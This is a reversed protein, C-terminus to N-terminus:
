RKILGNLEDKAKEIFARVEDHQQNISMELKKIDEKIRELRLEHKVSFDEIQKLLLQISKSDNKNNKNDIVKIQQLIEKEAETDKKISMVERIRHKDENEKSRTIKSTESIVEKPIGASSLTVTKTEKVLTTVSSNDFATENPQVLSYSLTDMKVQRLTEDSKKITTTSVVESPKAVSCSTAVVTIEKPPETITETHLMTENSKVNNGTSIKANNLLGTVSKDLESIAAYNDLKATKTEVADASEPVTKSTPNTTIISSPAKIETLLSVLDTKSIEKSENKKTIELNDKSKNNDANSSTAAKGVCVPLKAEKNSEDPKIIARAAPKEVPLSILVPEINDIRMVDTKNSNEKQGIVPIDKKDVNNQHFSYTQSVTTSQQFSSRNSSIERSDFNYSKTRIRNEIEVNSHKSDQHSAKSEQGVKELTEDDSKLSLKHERKRQIERMWPAVTKSSDNKQETTPPAPAPVKKRPLMKMWAPVGSAIEQNNDNQAASKMSPSKKLESVLQSIKPASDPVDKRQQKETEEDESATSLNDMSDSRQLINGKIFVQSPPRGTSKARTRRKDELPPESDIKALTEESKASNM